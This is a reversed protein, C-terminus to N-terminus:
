LRSQIVDSWTLTIYKAGSAISGFNVNFSVAGGVPVSVTFSTGITVHFSNQYTVTALGVSGTNGNFSYVGAVSNKCGFFNHASAGLMTAAM